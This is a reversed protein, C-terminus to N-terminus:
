SRTPVERIAKPGGELGTLSMAVLNAVAVAFTQEDYTWRRVGGTHECCIVGFVGGGLRIVADMMSTIGLPTLYGPSFEATRPDRHADDAALVDAETLAQFYPPNDATSLESGSSHRNAEREYLDLCRIGTKPGTFRWISVREVDLTRAAVETLQQIARTLSEDDKPPASTALQILANRQRQYRQDEALRAHEAAREATIDQISGVMRLPTGDPAYDVRARGHVWREAHGRAQIIRYERDFHGRAALLGKLYAGMEDRDAPHVVQLWGAVTRPHEPGIGLVRDLNESSRWSDAPIDFKFSGLQGVAEAERLLQDNERLSEYLGRFQGAQRSRYFSALGAACALVMLTVLAVAVGARYRAEAWVEDADLKAILFWDSDPVPRLDALVAVGRYDIGESPGVGGLVAKVAPMETRTIPERASLASGPRHRLENLFVVEDGDRRVLVTEATPSPTPWTQLMPFLAQQADTRLVVVGLPRGLNDRVAAATDVYVRGDEGRFFAGMVSGTGALAAGVTPSNGPGAGQGGAALLAQGDPSLVYAAAYGYTETGTAMVARARSMDADPRGQRAALDGAVSPARVLAEAHDLRTQRWQQLHEAKLTGIAAIAEYRERHIRGSENRYYAYGMAGLAVAFAVLVVAWRGVRVM